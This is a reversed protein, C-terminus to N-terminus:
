LFYHLSSYRWTGCDVWMKSSGTKQLLQLSQHM